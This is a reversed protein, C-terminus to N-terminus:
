RTKDIDLQEIIEWWIKVRDPNYPVWKVQMIMERLQEARYKDYDISLAPMIEECLFDHHVIPSPQIANGRLNLFKPLRSYQEQQLTSIKVYRCNKNALYGKVLEQQNKMRNRSQQEQVFFDRYYKVKPHDSEGSLWWTNDHSKYSHSHYALDQERIKDWEHDEIVKDFRRHSAWQFVVAQNSVNHRLLGDILFENGAGKGSIVVIETCPLIIKLIQPWEPWIHGHAYGDGICLIKAISM